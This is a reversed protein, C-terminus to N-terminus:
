LPPDLVNLVIAAMKALTFFCRSPLKVKIALM